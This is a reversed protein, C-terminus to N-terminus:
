LSIAIFFTTNAVVSLVWANSRSNSMLKFPTGNSEDLM